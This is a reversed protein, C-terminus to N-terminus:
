KYYFRFDWSTKVARNQRIYNWGPALTIYRRNTKRFAQLGNHTVTAGDIVLNGSMSETVKFVDGTTLNELEYGNSVGEIAIKLEHEFPNVEVNGANYIKFASTSHTYRLSEDDSILGMGFGWLESIDSIGERDIDATTGISEAFPLDTTEFVLEGFGYRYVQEIDFSSALRVKYRKGGVFYNDYDHERHESTDTQDDCIFGPHEKLRRMERVFFPETDTVLGFIEDRKLAVGHLDHAKFYFPVTITRAGYDAGMNVHGSRGEMTTYSPSLEISSVIFDRVEVGIESLKAQTGDQKTIEVDM